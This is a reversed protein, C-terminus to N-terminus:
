RRLEMHLIPYPRGTSDSESRGTTQFGFHEYFALAQINDENVDVKTIKFEKIAFGLLLKGIGNGIYDPHIFLMEVSCDAVGLFAIIKQEVNRVCKLKVAKLYKELILPKYYEIDAEKLFHHTARVSAEWVDIIDTYESENVADISYKM